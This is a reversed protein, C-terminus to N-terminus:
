LALCFKDHRSNKLVPMLAKVESQHEGQRERDRRIIREIARYAAVITAAKGRHEDTAQRDTM